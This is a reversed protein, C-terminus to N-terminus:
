EIKKGTLVDEGGQRLRIGTTVQLLQQQVDQRVQLMHRALVRGEVHKECRAGECAGARVVVKQKDAHERARRAAVVHKLLRAHELLQVLHDVADGGGVHVSLEDGGREIVGDIAKVPANHIASHRYFSLTIFNFILYRTM